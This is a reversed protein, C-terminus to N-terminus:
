KFIRNKSIRYPYESKVIKINGEIKEEILFKEVDEIKLECNYGIIIERLTCGTKNTWQLECHEVSNTKVRSISFSNSSNHDESPYYILRTEREDKFYPNKIFSKYHRLTHPINIFAMPDNKLSNRFVQIFQPILQGLDYYVMHWGIASKIESSPHPLNNQIGYFIDFSFGLAVGRSMDGYENWNQALDRNVSFCLGFPNMFNAKYDLNDTKIQLDISSMIADIEENGANEILLDERVKPWVFDYTRKIEEKDNSNLIQTLWLVKSSLIARFTIETCYHYLLQEKNEDNKLM